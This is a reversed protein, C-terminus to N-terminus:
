IGRKGFSTFLPAIKNNLWKANKNNEANQLSIRGFYYEKFSLFDNSKYKEELYQFSRNINSELEDNNRVHAFHYNTAGILKHKIGVQNMRYGLEFHEFGWNKFNEDFKLDFLLLDKKLIGMNGSYTTAWTLSSDSYGNSDFICNTVAIYNPTKFRKKNITSIVNELNLKNKSLYIERIQGITIYGQEAYTLYNYIALEDFYRDGDCFILFENKSVEIGINRACARGVHESYIYRYTFPYTSNLQLKEKSGDDIIIVEIDKFKIKRQLAISDLVLKTEKQQNYTILIISCKM